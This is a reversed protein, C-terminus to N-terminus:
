AAFMQAVRAAVLQAIAQYGEAGPHLGDGLLDSVKKPAVAQPLETHLDLYPVDAAQCAEVLIRSYRYVVAEEWRAGDVITAAIKQEDVEFPILVLVRPCIKKAAAVLRAADLKYGEESTEPRLGPADVWSRADNVGVAVILLEPFRVLAEGLRHTVEATKNGGIGLNFIGDVQFGQQELLGGLRKPWGGFIEGHGYTNSDGICVINKILM